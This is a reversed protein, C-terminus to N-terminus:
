QFIAPSMKNRIGLLGAQLRVGSHLLKSLAVRGDQRASGSAVYNGNQEERAQLLRTFPVNESILSRINEWRGDRCNSHTHSIREPIPPGPATTKPLAM